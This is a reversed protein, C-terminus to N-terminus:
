NINNKKLKKIGSNLLTISTYLVVIDVIWRMIEMPMEKVVKVAIFVGLLGFVAILFSAKRSYTGEKIFKISATPMLFACSGMMIPFAVKANMGLMYVLVMCPAYLGVGATMLAGLLFNISVGIILKMGSLGIESGGMPMLKFQGLLFLILSIFLAVGMIIQIKAEDIKSVVGAGLYAGLTAAIIMSILTIPEVEIAQTFLIAEAIVPLTCSVNLTGPLVKDKIQKFLRLLATTPAFSGIGMADMFNVFFGILATVFTNTEKEFSNKSKLLDIVFFKSFLISIGGLGVYLATIM